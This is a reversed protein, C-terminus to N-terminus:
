ESGPRPVTSVACNHASRPATPVGTTAPRVLGIVAKATVGVQAQKAQYAAHMSPHIKCAVLGMLDAVTSFLLTKNEQRDAAAEFLADLREAALVNEMAARIMTCVPAQQEFREVMERLIM